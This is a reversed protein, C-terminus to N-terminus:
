SGVALGIPLGTGSIRIIQTPNSGDLGGQWITDGTIWYLHSSDVAVGTTCCQDNTLNVIMTPNSGDLGAKWVTGRNVETWYLHGRDVVGRDVVVGWPYDHGTVIPTPNSGDLGAQWIRGSDSAGGNPDTWYLHSSDVALGVALNQGSIIQTPNSGDLGAEWVAGWPDQGDTWYLHSGAVAVGTTCCQGQGNNLDNIVMTPNSGDLGAEWVAAVNVDAWYVHGRDVAVGWPYDHGSIIETPDSGDLGARWIADDRSWYLHGAPVTGSLADSARAAPKKGVARLAANVTGTRTPALQVTVACSKRPGLSRASCRDNAITFAGSGSLSVKLAGSASDGANRLTLMKSQSSGAAVSGFDFPSPSFSLAPSNKAWAGAPLVLLILAVLPVVWRAQRRSGFMLM